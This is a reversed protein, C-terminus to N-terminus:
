CSPICHRFSFGSKTQSRSGPWSSPWLIKNPLWQKPHVAPAPLEQPPASTAGPPYPISLLWSDSDLLWSIPALRRPPSGSKTMDLGGRTIKESSTIAVLKELCAAGTFSEVRRKDGSLRGSQGVYRGPAWGVHRLRFDLRRPSTQSGKHRNAIRSVNTM